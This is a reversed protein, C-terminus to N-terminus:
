LNLWGNPDDCTKKGDRAIFELATGYKRSSIQEYKDKDKALAETHLKRDTASEVIDLIHLEETNERAKICADLFIQKDGDTIIKQFELRLPEREISSHKTLEPVYMHADKIPASSNLISVDLLEAPDATTPKEDLLAVLTKGAQPFREATKTIAIKVWTPRLKNHDYEAKTPDQGLAVEVANAITHPGCNFM